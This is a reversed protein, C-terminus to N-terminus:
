LWSITRNQMWLDVRAGAGIRPSCDPKNQFIEVYLFGLHDLLRLSVRRSLVEQVTGQGYSRGVLM